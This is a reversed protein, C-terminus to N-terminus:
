FVVPGPVFRAIWLGSNLDSTILNGKFLQAGWTMGWNPTVAYPSATSM